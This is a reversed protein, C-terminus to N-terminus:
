KGKGAGIRVLVRTARERADEDQETALFEQLEPLAKPGLKVLTEEAQRGWTGKDARLWRLLNPVMSVLDYRTAGEEVTETRRYTGLSTPLIEYLIDQRVQMEREDMLLGVHVDFDTMPAGADSPTWTFMARAMEFAPGKPSVLPVPSSAMQYWLGDASESKLVPAERVWLSDPMDRPIPALTAAYACDDRIKSVILASLGGFVLVVVVIVILVTRKM